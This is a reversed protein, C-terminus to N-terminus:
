CLRLHIELMLNTVGIDAPSLEVCLDEAAGLPLGVEVRRVDEMFGAGGCRPCTADFVHGDGHCAACPFRIPFAFAAEVYQPSSPREVLLDVRLPEIRGSKVEARDDFNRGIWDVIEEATTSLSDLGHPITIELDPGLSMPPGAGLATGLLPPAIGRDYRRRTEPDGLTEFAEIVQGFHPTLEPGLRAPHYHRLLDGFATRIARAPEGPSLGLAEYLTNEM